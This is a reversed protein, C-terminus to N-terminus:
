ELSQAVLLFGLLKLLDDLRARRHLLTEEVVAGELFLGLTVVSCGLLAM